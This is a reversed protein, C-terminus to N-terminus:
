RHSERRRHVYCLRVQLHGRRQFGFVLIYTTTCDNDDLWIWRVNSPLKAKMSRRAHVRNSSELDRLPIRISNSDSDGCESLFSEFMYGAHETSNVKMGGSISKRM